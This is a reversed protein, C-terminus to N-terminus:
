ISMSLFCLRIGIKKTRLIDVFDGERTEFGMGLGPRARGKGEGWQGEGKGKAM